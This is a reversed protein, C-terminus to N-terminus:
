CVTLSILASQFVPLTVINCRWTQDRHLSGAWDWTTCPAVDWARNPRLALSIHLRLRLRYINIDRYGPLPPSSISCVLNAHASVVRSLRAIV